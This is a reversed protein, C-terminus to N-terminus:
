KPGHQEPENLPRMAMGTTFLFKQKSGGLCMYPSNCHGPVAEQVHKKVGDEDFFITRRRTLVLWVKMHRDKAFEAAYREMAETTQVGEAIEQRFYVGPIARFVLHPEIPQDAWDNWRQVFERRDQEILRNITAEDIELAVALKRFLEARIDGEEEFMVIKNATGVIRTYGMRRAVDGVRLGLRLRQQKFHASLNTAM